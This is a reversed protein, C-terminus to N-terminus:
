LFLNMDPPVQSSDPCLDDERACGFTDQDNVHYVYLNSYNVVMAGVENDSVFQFIDADFYELVHILFWVIRM